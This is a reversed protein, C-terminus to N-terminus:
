AEESSESAEDTEPTIYVLVRAARLLTEGLRYGRQVVTAITGPEEDEPVPLAGIAEHFNPDFVEGEFAVRETGLAELEQQLKREVMHVGAVVDHVSADSDELGAVRGLDDLAELLQTVVEGQAKARAAAQERLTRKKYNDFEAALRLLRENAESLALELRSIEEDAADPEGATPAEQEGEDIGLDLVVDDGESEVASAGGLAEDENSDREEPPEPDRHKKKGMGRGFM